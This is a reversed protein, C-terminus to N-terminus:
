PSPYGVGTKFTDLVVRRVPCAECAPGFGCGKPDDIRHICGLAEGGRLGLMEEEDRGTFQMLADSVKRVRRDQDVLIMILPANGLIASIEM